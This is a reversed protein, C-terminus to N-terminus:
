IWMWRAELIGLCRVRPAVSAYPVGAAELKDALLMGVEAAGTLESM